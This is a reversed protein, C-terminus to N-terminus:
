NPLKKSATVVYKRRGKLESLRRTPLKCGDYLENKIPRQKVKLIM